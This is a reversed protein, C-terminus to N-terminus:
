SEFVTACNGLLALRGGPAVEATEEREIGLQEPTTAYIAAPSSSQIGIYITTELKTGAPWSSGAPLTAWTRVAGNFHAPAYGSATVPKPGVTWTSNVGMAACEIGFTTQPPLTGKLSVTFLVPEEQNEPNSFTDIREYSRNPYNRAMTLNRGSVNQNGRIWTIFDAYATFPAPIVPNTGQAAIGVLCFLSSSVANLLFRESAVAIGQPPTSPLPACNNGAITRVLNQSWLNTNLFLSSSARYLFVNWGSLTQASLNRTRAYLYNTTSGQQLPENPDTAYNASFYSQPDAVEAHGIIDPSAYAYGPSPVSGDDNLVDRMLMGNFFPM